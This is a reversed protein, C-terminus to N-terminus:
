VRPAAPSNGRISCTPRSTSSIAPSCSATPSRAAAAGLGEGGSGSQFLRFEARSQRAAGRGRQAQDQLPRVYLRAAARRAGSRRSSQGQARRLRIGCLDDRKGRGDAGKGHRHRRAQRYRAIEARKGQRHRGGGAAACQPRVPRRYRPELREQRYLPRGGGGPAVLDGLPALARQTAPGFKLNEECFVVLVGRPRAFATFGFKLAAAMSRGKARDKAARTAATPPQLNHVPRPRGHLAAKQQWFRPREAGGKDFPRILAKTHM